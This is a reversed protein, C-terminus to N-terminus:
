KKKQNFIRLQESLELIESSNKIKFDDGAGGSLLTSLKFKEMGVLDFRTNKLLRNLAKSVKCGTLLYHFFQERDLTLSCDEPYFYGIERSSSLLNEINEIHQTIIDKSISWDREEQFPFSSPSWQSALSKNEEDSELHLIIPLCIQSGEPLLKPIASISLKM